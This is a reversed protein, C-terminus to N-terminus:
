LKTQIDVRFELRIWCVVGFNHDKTVMKKVNQLVIFNKIKNIQQHVHLDSKINHFITHQSLSPYYFLLLYYFPLKYLFLLQFHMYGNRM